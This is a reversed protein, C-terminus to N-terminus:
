EIIRNEPALFFRLRYELKPTLVTNILYTAAEAQINNSIILHRHWGVTKSLDRTAKSWDLNMNIWLGLHKIHKNADQANVEIFTTGKKSHQIVPLTFDVSKRNQDMGFIKTKTPNMSIYNYECFTNVWENMRTIGDKTSSLLFTDDAYCKDAIPKISEDLIYGYQDNNYLPNKDLGAHMLDMAIIYLLPSLPCGQPCGRQILFPDTNGYSTKFEMTSDQMKGFVYKQFKPPLNIRRMGNSITFWRLHDFAKSVDYSVSFCSKNNEKADEWINLITNLVNSTGRHKLFGENAESIAGNKHLDSALRIALM